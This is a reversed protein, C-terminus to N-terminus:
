PAFGYVNKFEQKQQELEHRKQVTAGDEKINPHYLESDRKQIERRDLIIGVIQSFIQTVVEKSLPINMDPSDVEFEVSSDRKRLRIISRVIRIDWRKSVTILLYLEKDDLFSIEEESFTRFTKMSMYRRFRLLVKRLIQLSTFLILEGFVYFFLPINYILKEVWPMPYTFIMLLDYGIIIFPLSRYYWHAPKGSERMKRLGIKGILICIGIAIRGFAFVYINTIM